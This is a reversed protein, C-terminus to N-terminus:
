VLTIRLATGTDPAPAVSVTGGGAEVRERLARLGDAREGPREPDFVQADDVLEIVAAGDERERVSVRITGPRAHRRIDGLAQSVLELVLGPRGAIAPAEDVEAELFTMIGSAREFEWLLDRVSAGLELRRGADPRLQFIYARLDGIVRDLMAVDGELRRTVQPQTALVATHQLSMGIAFLRQIAGDHLEGAIRQRDEVLLLRDMAERGRAYDIAVSAAAAFLQVVTLDEGAFPGADRPNAVLLTGLMRDQVRLPVVLASAMGTAALFEPNARPDGGLDPVLIPEGSELARGVLSRGAPIRMGLVREAAAGDAVRLLLTSGDGEPQAITALTAGVLERARRAILALVHDAQEGALIAQAVTLVAELRDRARREATVDRNIEFIADSGPRDARLLVQRSSVIVRGGARRSHELEGEWRGDRLLREEVAALSEPFVTQLLDHSVRGIAEERTYGYLDVAGRNWYRIRDGAMSRVLIGDRALELAASLYREAAVGDGMAERVQHPLDDQAGM